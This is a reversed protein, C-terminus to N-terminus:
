CDRIQENVGKNGQEDEWTINVKFKRASSLSVLVNEEFSNGPELYEFPMKDKMVIINYEPPITVNINYVKIDGSNWM